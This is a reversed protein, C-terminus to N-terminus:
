RRLRSRVRDIAGSKELHDFIVEAFIRHGEASPHPDTEAVSLVSGRFATIGHKKMYRELASRFLVLPLDLQECTATVLPRPNQQLVILEFGHRISLEKLERMARRYAEEGVMDRYAAPVKDPDREFWNGEEAKPAAVLRLRQSIHELLFSDPAFFDVPERIFNPLDLDNGVFQILVIDPEYQLGREKLTEVEMVTNYGGVATNILEWSEDPYTQNLKRSLRAMYIDDDSVGNGYMYSDGLGVIRVTEPGKEIPYLPGRFGSRNITYQNSRGDVLRLNPKHEYLIRPNASLKIQHIRSLQLRKVDPPPVETDHELDELRGENAGLYAASRFGIELLLLTLGLPLLILGIRAPLSLSSSAM